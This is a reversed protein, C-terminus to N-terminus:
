CGDFETREDLEKQTMEGITITISDGVECSSGDDYEGVIQAVVEEITECSIEKDCGFGATVFFVRKKDSM